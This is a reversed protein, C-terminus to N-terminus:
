KRLKRRKVAWYTFWEVMGTAFFVLALGIIVIGFLTGVIVVACIFLLSFLGLLSM